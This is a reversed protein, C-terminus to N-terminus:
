LDISKSNFRRDKKLDQIFEDVPIDLKLAGYLSKWSDKEHNKEEKRDAKMSQSLRTILELKANPSLSKLLAYYRDILSTEFSKM